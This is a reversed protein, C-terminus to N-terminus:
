AVPARLTVFEVVQEGLLAVGAAAERDVVAGGPGFVPEVSNLAVGPPTPWGRLAHVISRVSQLTTLAAQWGFVCTICGVPLGDLYPRPADRLDELYDLANKVLGSM